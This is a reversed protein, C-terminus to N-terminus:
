AIVMSGTVTDVPLSDNFTRTKRFRTTGDVQLEVVLQFPGAVAYHWAVIYDGPPLPTLTVVLPNPGPPIEILSRVTDGLADSGIKTITVRVKASAACVLFFADVRQTPNVKITRRKDPGRDCPSAGLIEPTKLEGRTAAGKKKDKRDKKDKKSKKSTKSAM